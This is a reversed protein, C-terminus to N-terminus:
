VPAGPDSPPQKRPTPLQKLVWRSVPRFFAIFLVLVVATQWTFLKEM